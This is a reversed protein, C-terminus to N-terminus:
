TVVFIKQLFFQVYIYNIFFQSVNPKFTVNQNLHNCDVGEFHRASPVLLSRSSFTENVQSENGDDIDSNLLPSFDKHLSMKSFSLEVGSGVIM